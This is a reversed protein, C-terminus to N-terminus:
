KTVRFDCLESKLVSVVPLLLPRICVETLKSLENGPGRAAKPQVFALHLRPGLGLGVGARIAELIM